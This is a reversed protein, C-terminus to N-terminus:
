GHKQGGGSLAAVVARNILVELDCVRILIEGKPDDAEIAKALLVVETSASRWMDLTRELTDACDHLARKATAPFESVDIERLELPTLPREAITM